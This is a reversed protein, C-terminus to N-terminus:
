RRMPWLALAALAAGGLIALSSPEPVRKPQGGNIRQICCVDDGGIGGGGVDPGAWVDPAVPTPPLMANGVRWGVGLGGGALGSVVVCTWVLKWSPTHPLHRVVHRLGHRYLRHRLRHRMPRWIPWCRIM